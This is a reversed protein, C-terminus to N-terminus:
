VWMLVRGVKAHNTLELFFLFFFLIFQGGTSTKPATRIVGARSKPSRRGGDRKEGSISSSLNPLEKDKGRGKKKMCRSM